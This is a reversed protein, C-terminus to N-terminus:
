IAVSTSRVEGAPTLYDVILSVRGSSELIRVYWGRVKGDSDAAHKAVNRAERALYSKSYDTCRNTSENLIRIM